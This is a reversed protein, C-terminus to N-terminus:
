PAAEDYFFSDAPEGVEILPRGCLTPVAGPENDLAGHAQLAAWIDKGVVWWGSSIRGAPFLHRLHARARDVLATGEPSLPRERTVNLSVPPIPEVFIGLEIYDGAAIAAREEDSPQWVLYVGRDSGGRRVWADGVDPTPGRYVFNSRATRIPIM